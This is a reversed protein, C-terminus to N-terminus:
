VVPPAPPPAPLHVFHTRPPKLVDLNGAAWKAILQQPFDLFSVYLDRDPNFRPDLAQFRASAHGAIQRMREENPFPNALFFEFQIIRRHDIERISPQPVEWRAAIEAAIQTLRPEAEIKRELVALVLALALVERTASEIAEDQVGDPLHGTRHVIKNRWTIGQLVLAMSVASLLPDAYLLPVLLGIRPMLEIELARAVSERDLERKVRLLTKLYRASVIELCIVAELLALRLNQLRLHEIANTLFEQEPGAELEDELAEQIQPWGTSALQPGQSERRGLLDLMTPAPYLGTWAAGDESTEVSWEALLRETDAPKVRIENLLAVGGFNRIAGL